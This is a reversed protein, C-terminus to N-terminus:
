GVSKRDEDDGLLRRMSQSMAVVSRHEVAVGKPRGTSGSTYIVYALDSASPADLGDPTEEAVEDLRMLGPVGECLEARKGGDVIVGAARAHELMYRVRERPYQPDLPVYACGARLVGVLTAVLEWTRRMCVGILAGRKMGRKLLAGAIADARAILRTYDVEVEGDIIATRDPHAQAQKEILGCITETHDYPLETRNWEMLTRRAEEESQLFAGAPAASGDRAAPEAVAVCDRGSGPM